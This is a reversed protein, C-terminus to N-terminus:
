IKLKEVLIGTLVILAGGFIQTITLSEGLLPFAIFSVFVPTFSMIMTMFTATSHKFGQFILVALLFDLFTILLVLPLQHPIAISTNALALIVLPIISIMFRGSSVTNASMRNTSLKGLVNTGFAILIAELITFLDGRTFRISSGGTTLFYSGVLLTLVLVLKEHTIRERLFLYSFIITFVTVTRILFAFNVAPSYTLAFVESLGVGVSSVLAMAVLLIYDNRQLAYFHTRERFVMVLWYPLALVTTWFTLNFPNEGGTLVIRYLIITVAWVIAASMAYIFGIRIKM